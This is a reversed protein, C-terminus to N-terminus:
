PEFPEHILLCVESRTEDGRQSEGGARPRVRLIRAVQDLRTIGRRGPRANEASDRDILSDAM